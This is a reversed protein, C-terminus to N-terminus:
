FANGFHSLQQVGLNDLPQGFTKFMGHERRSVIVIISLISLIAISLSVTNIIMSMASNFVIAFAMFFLAWALTIVHKDTVDYDEHDENEPNNLLKRFDNVKPMVGYYISNLFSVCYFMNMTTNTAHVKPAFSAIFKDFRM